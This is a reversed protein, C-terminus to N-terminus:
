LKPGSVSRRPKKPTDAFIKGLAPSRADETAYDRASKGALLDPQDPDAGVALLARVTAIDRHQVARILPTEGSSNGLNVNANSSILVQILDVAGVSAALLLPTNGKNDRINPDAGKALLFRLYTSDGRKVVIHLAGEGTSYDRTDIITTGPENLMKTVDDGKSDRVAQLFKYSASGGLQALGPTATVLLAATLAIGFKRAFM